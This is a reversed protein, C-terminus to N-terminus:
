SLQVIHITEIGGKFIALVIVDDTRVIRYGACARILVLRIDDKAIVMGQRIRLVIDDQPRQICNIFRGDRIHNGDAMICFHGFFTAHSNAATRFCRCCGTSGPIIGSTCCCISCSCPRGLLRSYGNTCCIFSTLNSAHSSTFLFGIGDVDCLQLFQVAHLSIHICIVDPLVQIMFCIACSDRIFILCGIFVGPAAGDTRAADCSIVTLQYCALCDILVVFRNCGFPLRQVINRVGLRCALVQATEICLYACVGSINGVQFVQRVDGFCTLRDDLIKRFIGHLNGM